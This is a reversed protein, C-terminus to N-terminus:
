VLRRDAERLKALMPAAAAELAAAQRRREARTELARTMRELDEDSLERRKAPSVETFNLPDQEAPRAGLHARDLAISLDRAEAMADAVDEAYAAILQRAVEDAAGAVLVDIEVRALDAMRHLLVEAQRHEPLSKV